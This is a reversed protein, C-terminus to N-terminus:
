LIIIAYVNKLCREDINTYGLRQFWLSEECWLITKTRIRKDRKYYPYLYPLIIYPEELLTEIFYDYSCYFIENEREININELVNSITSFEGSYEFIEILKKELLKASYRKKYIEICPKLWHEIYIAFGLLKISM